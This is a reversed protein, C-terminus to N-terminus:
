VSVCVNRQYARNIACGNPAHALSEGAMARLVLGVKHLELGESHHCANNSPLIHPGAPLCSLYRTLPLTPLLPGWNALFREACMASCLCHHSSGSGLRRGVPVARLGQTELVEEPSCAYRPLLWFLTYPSKRLCPLLNRPAAGPFLFLDLCGEPICGQLADLTPKPPRHPSCFATGWTQSLVWTESRWKVVLCVGM